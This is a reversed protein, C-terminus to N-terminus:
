KKQGFLDPPIPLIISELLSVAGLVKTSNNKKSLKITYNILKFIFNKFTKM